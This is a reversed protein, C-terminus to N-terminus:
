CGQEHPANELSSGSPPALLPTGRTNARLWHERSTRSIRGGPVVVQSRPAESCPDPPFARSPLASGLGLIAMTSRLLARTGGTLSAPAGRLRGAGGRSM